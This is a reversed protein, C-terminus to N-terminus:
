MQGGKRKILLTNSQRRLTRIEMLGGVQRLSLVTVMEGQPLLFLQFHHFIYRV